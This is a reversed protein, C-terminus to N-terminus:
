NNRNKEIIALMDAPVCGAHFDYYGPQIAGVGGRIEITTDTLDDALPKDCADCVKVTAM